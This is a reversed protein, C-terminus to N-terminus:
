KVSDAYLKGEVTLSKVHFGQFKEKQSVRFMAVPYSVAMLSFVGVLMWVYKHMQRSSTHNTQRM